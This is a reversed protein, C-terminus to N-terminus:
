LDNQGEGSGPTPRGARTYRLVLEDALRCTERLEFRPANAVLGFGDGDVLSTSDGGGAIFPMITVLIEDVLDERIFEWNTRGGGELLISRMGKEHLVRLLEPLDVMGRGMEVIEVSSAELMRRKVAPVGEPSAVITPIEGATELIRSNAPLDARSGVIIRTPNKGQVRRVSLLPDDVRVTEMGVLIADVRSRVKHLRDLDDASSFGSDGGSTSIKGDISM